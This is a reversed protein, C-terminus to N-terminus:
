KKNLMRQNGLYRISQTGNQAKIGRKIQEKMDEEQM